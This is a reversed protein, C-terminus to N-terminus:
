RENLLFTKVSSKPIPLTLSSYSQMPYNLTRNLEKEKFMSMENYANAQPRACPLSSSYLVIPPLVSQLKEDRGARLLARQFDSSDICQSTFLSTKFYRLMDLLVNKLQLLYYSHFLHITLM